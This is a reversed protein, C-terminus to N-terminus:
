REFHKSNALEEDLESAPYDVVPIGAASVVTLMEALPKVAFNAERLAESPNNKLQRINVTQMNNDRPTPLNFSYRWDVTPAASKTSALVMAQTTVARDGIEKMVKFAIRTVKLRRKWLYIDSKKVTLFIVPKVICSFSRDLFFYHSSDIPSPFLHLTPM